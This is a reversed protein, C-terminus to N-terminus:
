QEVEEREDIIEGTFNNIYKMPKMAGCEDCSIFYSREHYGRDKCITGEAKSM